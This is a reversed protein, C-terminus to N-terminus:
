PFLLCGTNSSVFGTEAPFEQVVDDGVENFHEDLITGLENVIKRRM